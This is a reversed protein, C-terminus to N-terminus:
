LNSDGEDEWFREVDEFLKKAEVGLKSFIVDKLHDTRIDINEFFGYVLIQESYKDLSLLTIDNLFSYFNCLENLEAKNIKNEIESRQLKCFRDALRGFIYYLDDDDDIEDKFTTRFNPMKELVYEYINKENIEDFRMEIEM